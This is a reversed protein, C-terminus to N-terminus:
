GRLDAQYIQARGINDGPRGNGMIHYLRQNAKLGVKVYVSFLSISKYSVDISNFTNLMLSINVSICM